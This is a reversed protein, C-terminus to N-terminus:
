YEGKYCNERSTSNIQPKKENMERNGEHNRHDKWRNQYKSPM